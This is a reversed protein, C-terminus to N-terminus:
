LKDKLKGAQEEGAVGQVRVQQHLLDHHCHDNHHHDYHCYDQPHSVAIVNMTLVIVIITRTVITVM